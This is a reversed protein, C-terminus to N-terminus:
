RTLYRDGPDLDGPDPDAPFGLVGVTAPRWGAPVSLAATVADAAAAPVPRERVALGAVAAAPALPPAPNPDDGTGFVVLVAPGDTDLGADALARRAAPSSVHVYRWGDPKSAAGALAAAVERVAEAPVPRDALRGDSRWAAVAARRGLAQAEATGLSFMDEASARVLATAGPGDADLVPGLGRVIAVPVGSTKGKVLDAAGALEDIVAAATVSLDNGYPDTQGRHDRLPAIGAAGIAVDTQGTRWTRGMTDTVVVAVRVGLLEALGARLTRASADPDVPLLVLRDSDVNSADVGAAALVLGHRTQVIRTRGRAAVVRVTEADVAAQRAAERGAPDTPSPVLRGEAKSVIKSTVVLVDDDRLDAGLGAILAALDDGPAVEGLGTLPLVEVRGPVADDHGAPAREIHGGGPRYPEPM